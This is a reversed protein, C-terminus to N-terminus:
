NGKHIRGYEPPVCCQSVVVLFQKHLYDCGDGCQEDACRCEGRCGVLVAENPLVMEVAAGVVATRPRLNRAAIGVPFAVHRFGVRQVGHAVALQYQTACHVRIATGVCRMVDGASEVGSVFARYAVAFHLHTGLEATRLSRPRGDPHQGVSVYFPRLSALNVDHFMEVVVGNGVLGDVRVVRVRQLLVLIRRVAGGQGDVAVAEVGVGSISGSESTNEMFPRM